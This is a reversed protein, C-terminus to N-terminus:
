AQPENEHVSSSIKFYKAIASLILFLWIISAILIAVFYIKNPLYSVVIVHQGKTVKVQVTGRNSQIFNNKKGNDSVVTNQYALAPLDVTSKTNVNIQYKLTNPSTTPSILQKKGNIVAEHNLINKASTAAKKPFYDNEGYLVKYAFQYEYNKNNILAVSTATYAPTLVDKTTKKLYYYSDINKNRFIDNSTSGWFVISTIVFLGLLKLFFTIRYSSFIQIKSRALLKDVGTAFIIALFFIAYSTYRYPFQIVAFPTSQLLKWPVISTIIVASFVGLCYIIQSQKDNKIWYWGFFAVFLLIIGLGGMNTANNTLSQTFFIDAGFLINIGKEVSTVDQGIFDTLFPILVFSSLIITLITAKILNVLQKKKIGKNIAISIIFILVSYECLIIVSVLHAYFILSMGVSLSIWKNKDGFLINFLGMFVIPIFTYAIFEGLVYNTIGLYLHYPAITYIISFIISRTSNGESFKYMCFYSILFTAYILLFLFLVFSTIPSFFFRLFAWPYLFFTPYFLFSASGVKGFTSSAIYTLPQGLKLNQFIQEARSAHFSWDSFIAFQQTYFLPILMIASLIAFSLIPLICINLYFHKKKIKM